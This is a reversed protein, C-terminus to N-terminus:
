ERANIGDYRGTELANWQDLGAEVQAALVFVVRSQGVFRELEGARVGIFDLVHVVQGVGLTTVPEIHFQNGYTMEDLNMEGNILLEM